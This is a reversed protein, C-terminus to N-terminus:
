PKIRPVRPSKWLLMLPSKWFVNLLTLESGNADALVKAHDFIAKSKEVHAFDIPALIKKFMEVEM